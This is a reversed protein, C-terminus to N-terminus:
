SRQFTKEADLYADIYNDIVEGVIKAREENSRAYEYRRYFEPPWHDPFFIEYPSIDDDIGLEELASSHVNDIGPQINETPHSLQVAWGALCGVTGCAPFTFEIPEGYGPYSNGSDAGAEGKKLWMDMRLRAPEELIHHKVKLLLKVNLPM